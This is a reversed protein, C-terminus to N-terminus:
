LKGLNWKEKILQLKSKIFGFLIALGIFSSIRFIFSFVILQISIQKLSGILFDFISQDSFASYSLYSSHVSLFLSITDVNIVLIISLILRFIFFEGIKKLRLLQFVLFCVIPILWVYYWYEGFIYDLYNSKENQNDLGLYYILPSILHIILLISSLFLIFDIGKRDIVKLTESKKNFLFICSLILSSLIFGILLDQKIFDDLFRIVEIM